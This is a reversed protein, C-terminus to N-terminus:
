VFPLARVTVRYDAIERIPFVIRATQRNVWNANEGSIVEDREWGEALYLRAVDTGFAIHQRTPLQAQNVRYMVIGDRDYIKEGLPMVQEIYARTADRTDSYPLRNPTAANIVVYRVDYFAVFQPALARDRAITESTLEAYRQVRALSDFIPVRAFYEFLAPPNRSTNGSFLFKGHVRQYSQTRTDEAGEMTFSNRWGLPVSLIAFGGRERAIQAYVEPVRADTLPLPVALHEFLILSLFAFPLLLFLKQSKMKLKQSTWALAFAILVALSLMVLISYRNPVRNEKLFPIYHLLLFPMPFTTELGDFDFVSQGNIHLLPGLSLITFALAAVIWVALKKRYVLAGLMALVLTAYGLFVTNVDVFRSNGQRVADLEEVWHRNLPHLSTPTFLGALDVLLKEAHGWGPLQYGSLFMEGVLPVLLPSFFLAAALALAGLRMLVRPARAARWEFALYLLTFLVLLPAHAADSYMALAAFLGALIPHQWRPERITKILFLIYFPFWQTTLVTYHGLAAYVMRSSTFAFVAGAIFTVLQLNLTELQFTFGSVQVRYGTVQLLYGVLLYVGYAGLVFTALVTANVAPIL